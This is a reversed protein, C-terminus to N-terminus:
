KTNHNRLEIPLTAKILKAKREIYEKDVIYNLDDKISSVYEDNQKNMEDLAIEIEKINKETERKKEDAYKKDEDTMHSILDATLVDYLMDNLLRSLLFSIYGAGSLKYDSYNIIYNNYLRSFEHFRDHELIESITIGATTTELISCAEDSLNFALSADIYKQEMNDSWGLLFEYPVEFFGRVKDLIEIDPTRSFNEYYSVAGRSIGLKDGLDSQNLGITERLFKLRKGFCETVFGM